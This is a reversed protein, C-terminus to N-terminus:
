RRPGVGFRVKVDITKGLVQASTFATANQGYWQKSEPTDIGYLPIRVQRGDKEADTADGDVVHVVKGSWAHSLTQNAIGHAM